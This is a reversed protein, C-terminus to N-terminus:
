ILPGCDSELWRSHDLRSKVTRSNECSRGKVKGSQSDIFHQDRAMHGREISLGSSKPIERKPTERIERQKKWIRQNQSIRSLEECSVLASSRRSRVAQFIKTGRSHIQVRKLYIKTKQGEFHPQFRIIHLEAEWPERTQYDSLSIRIIHHPEWFGSIRGRKFITFSMQVGKRRKMKWFHSILYIQYNM